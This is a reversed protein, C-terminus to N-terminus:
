GSDSPSATSVIRSGASEDGGYRLCLSLRRWCDPSVMPAFLLLRFKLGPEDRAGLRAALVAASLLPPELLLLDVESSDRLRARWQGAQWYIADVWYPGLKRNLARLDRMVWWSIAAAAALCVYWPLSSYWMALLSVGALAIGPLCCYGSFVPKYHAAPIIWYPVSLARM